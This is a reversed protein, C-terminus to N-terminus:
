LFDSTSLKGSIGPNFIRPKLPFMFFAAVLHQAKDHLYKYHNVLTGLSSLEVRGKELLLGLDLLVDAVM